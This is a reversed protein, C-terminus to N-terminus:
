PTSLILILQEDNEIGINQYFLCSNGLEPIPPRPNDGFWQYLNEVATSKASIGDERRLTRYLSTSEHEMLIYRHHTDGPTGGWRKISWERSLLRVRSIPIRDRLLSLAYERLEPHLPIAPKQDMLIMEM